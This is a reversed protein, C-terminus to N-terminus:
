PGSYGRSALDAAILTGHSSPQRLEVDAIVLAEATEGAPAQAIPEGRNNTTLSCGVVKRGKWPGDTIWGVNSVGVVPLDYLRGLEGYSRQWKDGYPEAELDRSAELAWSSPSLLLQAGMRALTHGIALSTSLNDACISLGLTGLETEAVMLRDGISYLDHAIALENIKRHVLLLNGRPDILVASNYLREGAREVLGAVVFIQYEIAAKALRNSHLGPIPQSHTKASPDTWGLDLCEPLVILRCDKESAEKIFREARALNAEPKGGEVLMQGMAIRYKLQTM